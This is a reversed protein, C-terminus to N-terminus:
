QDNLANRITAAVLMLGHANLHTGDAYFAIDRDAWVAEYPDAYVCNAHATALAKLAENYRLIRPNRPTDLNPSTAILVFRTDPASQVVHRINAVYETIPVVEIAGWREQLRFVRAYKKIKKVLKRLVKRLPSDPYYLVYPSGNFTLWSDVLGYQILAIGHDKPPFDRAYELLERTTSMTHGFNLVPRQLWDGIQEPFGRRESEGFGLTNCDGYAVLSDRRVDTNPM